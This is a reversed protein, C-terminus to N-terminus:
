KKSYIVDGYNERQWANYEKRTKGINLRFRNGGTENNFKKWRLANAERKRGPSLNELGEPKKERKKRHLKPYKLM